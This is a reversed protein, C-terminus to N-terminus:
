GAGHRCVMRARSRGGARAQDNSPLLRSSRRRRCSSPPVVTLFSALPAQAVSAWFLPKEIHTPHRNMPRTAAQMRGAGALAPWAHGRVPPGRAVVRAPRGAPRQAVDSGLALLTRLWATHLTAQIVPPPAADAGVCLPCSLGHGALRSWPSPSNRSPQGSGPDPAAQTVMGRATCVASLLPEGEAQQPLPGAGLHGFGLLLVHGSALWAALRRTWRHLSSRAM